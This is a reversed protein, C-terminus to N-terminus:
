AFLYFGVGLVVLPVIICALMGPKADENRYVLRAQWMGYFFTVTLINATMVALIMPWITQM